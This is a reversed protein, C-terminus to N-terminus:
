NASTEDIALDLLDALGQNFEHAFPEDYREITFVNIPLPPPVLTM